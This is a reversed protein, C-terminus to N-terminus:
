PLHVELASGIPIDEADYVDIEALYMLRSRENENLAYYPTFAPKSRVTRVVGKFSQPYGDISITLETGPQTQRRVTEPLYVRAFPQSQTLIRFMQTGAQVSDGAHWPSSDLTGDVPALIQYHSLAESALNVQAQAAEVQAQRQTLVEVRAGNKLELWRQELQEAQAKTQDRFAKANDLAARGIANARYLEQTRQLQLLAESDNAQAGQWAAYASEIQELRNGNETENLAAQAQKLQAQAYALQAQAGDEKFQALLQGQSVKEGERVPLFQIQQTVLTNLILSNRELTGLAVHDSEAQCGYLILGISILVIIQMPRM